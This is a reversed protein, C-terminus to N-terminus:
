GASDPEDEPLGPLEPTAGDDEDIPIGLPPVEDEDEPLGTPTEIV